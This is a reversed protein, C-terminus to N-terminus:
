GRDQPVSMGDPKGFGGLLAVLQCLFGEEAGSFEDAMCGRIEQM